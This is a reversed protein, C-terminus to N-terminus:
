GLRTIAEANASSGNPKPLMNWQSARTERASDANTEEFAIFYGEFSGPFEKRVERHPGCLTSIV